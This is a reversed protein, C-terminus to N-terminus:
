KNYQDKAIDHDNQISSIDEHLRFINLEVNEIKILLESITIIKNM